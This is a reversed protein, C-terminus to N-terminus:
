KAQELTLQTEAERHPLKRMFKLVIAPLVILDFLLALVITGSTLLGMQANKEFSSSSLLMFGVVLLISSIVIASMTHEFTVTVSKEPTLGRKLGEIYQYLFHVTDDVIIGIAMASVGALGMSIHGQICYWFGFAAGVPILNPILTLIGIYFSRFVAALALSIVLFAVLAGQLLSFINSQGVHSFILSPSSHEFTLGQVNNLQLWASVRAEFALMEVSTMNKLRATLKLSSKDFSVQNGVDKGFPLSMEYLLFHQAAVRATEPIRYYQNDDGHMLRNLQKIRHLPSDTIVVEQQQLLWIDFQEIFQLYSPLFIGNEKNSSLSYGINYLGSFHQDIEEAQVRFPVSENFYKILDDDTENLFSLSAFLISVPLFILLIPNRYQIVVTALGNMRQFINTVITQKASIRMSLLLRPLLTFSLLLSFLVGFAVINGLDRFPPSDSANMALFGIVTTLHSVIIPKANHQYSSLVADFQSVGLILQRKVYSIIHISSAVIVTFMIIPASVSPASLNIGLWGALGLAGMLSLVLVVLISLAAQASGLIVGAAVLVFVIMLPILTTFDKKAAKFFAGNMTVLGTVYFSHDPYAKEFEAVYMEVAQTIALIEAKHNDGPMLTTVNIATYLGDRTVLSDLLDREGEAAQKIFNLRALDLQEAEYLLEEIEIDDGAAWSFPFNTLSDVRSSFPIQWLKDTLQYVLSITEISYIQGQKPKIMIFVNDTATYTADMQELALLDSDQEDFFIKYDSALGIDKLGIISLGTIVLCFFLLWSAAKSSLIDRWLSAKSM